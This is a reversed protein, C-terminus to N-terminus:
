SGAELEREDEQPGSWSCAFREYADIAALHERSDTGHMEEAERVAAQHDVIGADQEAETRPATWSVAM